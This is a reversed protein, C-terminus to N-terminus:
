EEEDIDEPKLACNDCDNDCFGPLGAREGPQVCNNKKEIEAWIIGGEIKLDKDFIGSKREIKIWFLKKKAELESIKSQAKELERNIREWTLSESKSLPAVPEYETTNGQLPLFNQFMDSLPHNM